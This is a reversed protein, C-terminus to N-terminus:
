IATSAPPRTTATLAAAAANVAVVRGGADVAMVPDAMVALLTDLHLRQRAGPLVDVVSIGRVGPIRLFDERLSPLLDETLEPIDIFVDSSDVEVAVVNMSRRALVALIEHAIGVRDAFQVDIRM